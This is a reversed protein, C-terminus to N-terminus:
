DSLDTPMKRNSLSIRPDVQATLSQLLNTPNDIKLLMRDEIKEILVRFSANKDLQEAKLSLVGKIEAEDGEWTRENSAFLNRHNSTRRSNNERASSNRNGQTSRSTMSNNANNGGRADYRSVENNRLM